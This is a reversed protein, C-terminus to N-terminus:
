ETGHFREVLATVAETAAGEEFSHVISHPHLQVERGGDNIPLPQSGESRLFEGLQTRLQETTTKEDIVLYLGPAWRYLHGGSPVGQTLRQSFTELVAELVAEGYRREVADIGKLKVVALRFPRERGVLEAIYAEAHRRLPMASLSETHVFKAFAEVKSKASELGARMRDFAQWSEAEQRKVDSELKGLRDSLVRRLASIDEIRGVEGLHEVTRRLGQYFTRNSSDLRGATEALVAIVGGLEKERSAFCAGVREWQVTLRDALARSTSGIHSPDARRKLERGLNELDECFSQHSEADPAPMHERTTELLNDIVAELARRTSREDGPESSAAPIETPVAEGSAKPNGTKADQLHKKISIM